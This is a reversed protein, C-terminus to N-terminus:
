QTILFKERGTKPMWAPARGMGSWTEGTKPNQYRPERVPKKEPATGRRRRGFVDKETFGYTAVKERIDDLVAQAEEERLAEAEAQLKAIQAQIDAYNKRAAM